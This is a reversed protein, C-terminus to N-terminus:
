SAAQDNAAASQVLVGGAGYHDSLWVTIIELESERLSVLWDPDEKTAPRLDIHHAGASCVLLLVDTIFSGHQHPLRFSVGGSPGNDMLGKGVSVNALSDLCIAIVPDLDHCL